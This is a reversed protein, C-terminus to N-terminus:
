EECNVIAMVRRGVLLKERGMDLFTSDYLEYRDLPFLDNQPLRKGSVSTQKLNVRLGSVTEKQDEIRSM